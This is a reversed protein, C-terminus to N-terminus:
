AELKDCCWTDKSEKFVILLDREALVEKHKKLQDEANAAEAKNLFETDESNTRDAWDEIQPKEEERLARALHDVRKSELKRQRIKEQRDRKAQGVRAAEIQEFGFSPLDEATIDTIKKGGVKLFPKNLDTAKKKGGVDGGM